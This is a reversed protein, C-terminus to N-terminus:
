HNFAGSQAGEVRYSIGSATKDAELQVSPEAIKEFGEPLTPTKDTKEIMEIDEIGLTQKFFEAFAARYGEATGAAIFLREGVLTLVYADSVLATYDVAYLDERDTKGFVIEKETRETMSDKKMKLNVGTAKAYLKSFEYAMEYTTDDNSFILAYSKDIEIMRAPEETVEVPDTTVEPPVDQACGAIMLLALLFVILRKM